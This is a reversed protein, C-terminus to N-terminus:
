KVAVKGGLKDRLPFDDEKQKGSQSEVNKYNNVFRDPIPAVFILAASGVEDVERDLVLHVNDLVHHVGEVGLTDRVDGVAHHRLQLLEAGLVPDGQPDDLVWPVWGANGERCSDHHDVEIGLERFM